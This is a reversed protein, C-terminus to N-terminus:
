VTKARGKYDIIVDNNKNVKVIDFPGQYHYKELKGPKTGM